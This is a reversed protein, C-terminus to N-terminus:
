RLIMGQGTPLALVSTGKREAFADWAKRTEGFQMHGYDDSIIMGGLVMRGWFYELADAEPQAHNLDIHLYAVRESRVQELTDPIMGKILEVNPFASFSARVQEYSDNYSSNPEWLDLLYFTQRMHKFGIYEMAVRSLFGRSVGCEVFDGNLRKANMAAWCIVHARWKMQYQAAANHKLATEYANAFKLDRLFDARNQTALGDENYDLRGHIAYNALRLYPMIQSPILQKM